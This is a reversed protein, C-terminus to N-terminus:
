LDRDADQTVEGRIFPDAGAAPSALLCLCLALCALFATRTEMGSSYCWGCPWKWPPPAPPEAAGSQEGRPIGGRWGTYAIRCNGAEPSRYATATGNGLLFRSPCGVGAENGQRTGPRRLIRKRRRSPSM